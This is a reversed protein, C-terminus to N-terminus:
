AGRGSPPQRFPRVVPPDDLDNVDDVPEVLPPRSAVVRNDLVGDATVGQAPTLMHVPAAPTGPGPAAGPSAAPHGATHAAPHAATHAAAAEHGAGPAGPGAPAGPTGSTGRPVPRLVGTAPTAHRGSGPRRRLLVLTLAGGLLLLAGVAILAPANSARTRAPWTIDVDPAPATGDVAAVLRWQGPADPWTIVATAAGGAEAVWIDAERPDPITLPGSVTRVPADATDADATIAVHAVDGLWAKVDDARAVGLFVPGLTSRATVRVTGQGAALVGPDTVVVPTKASARTAVQPSPAWVTARLVGLALVVVGAAAVALALLPALSRARM